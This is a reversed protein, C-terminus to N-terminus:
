RKAAALKRELWPIMGGADILELIHPPLKTAALTTGQTVDRVIGEVVDVELEDGERITGAEACELVPLGQNIANRFFIRAFFPAVIASVGAIRLASAAYERSSGTGFNKGGVILDGRRVRTVFTPDIGEMAHAAAEQDTLKLYKGPVIADTSVDDGYVLARGHLIM